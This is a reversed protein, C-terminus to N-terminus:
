LVGGTETWFDISALVTDGGCKYDLQATGTFGVGHVGIWEKIPETLGSWKGVDWLDVDWVAEAIDPLTPVVGPKPAGYDTMVSVSITPTATAIFTPRLMKFVKQRAGTEFNAEMSNYAPTVQCQIPLGTTEGILVNDLPGDFARVVRGDFTGAFVDADVSVFCSYPLAKLQSWGATSLKLGFYQGGFEPSDPPVGILFLEEKPVTVIQWGDLTSAERMLRSVVPSILYSLRMSEQQALDVTNLLRSIANVGLQSLIHVDAGTNLVSRRGAPLPGIHWVGQIAWDTASDPDTGKYLAIDGQSSVAVLYDDVGIGGDVTWSVVAVLHGGHRFQEGFNFETVTGTIQSVPLYWASTSEKEIFWLRKKHEVVYCFLAPDCGTIFGPGSGLAPMTWSSGDFYAYGGDDNCAVLFSGALNQFNIWTWFDSTSSVGSMPTWPGFGGATVDYIRGSTAAFLMGAPPTAAVRPEAFLRLSVPMPRMVAPLLMAAPTTDAPYYSMMTRVPIGPSLNRVWETYGKRTRLGYPECLANMLSIAYQSGMLSLSDRANLGKAPIALPTVTGLQAQARRTNQPTAVRFM